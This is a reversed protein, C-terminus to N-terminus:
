SLKKPYQMFCILGLPNQPKKTKRNPSIWKLAAGRAIAIHRTNTNGKDPCAGNIYAALVKAYSRIIEYREPQGPKPTHYTFNKELDYM